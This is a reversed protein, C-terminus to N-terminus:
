KKAQEELYLKTEEALARGVSPRACLRKFYAPVSPAASFDQQLFMAWNLVTVLYADAVSFGDLLFDHGALRRELVSLRLAAKSKAYDRAGQGAKPDLPPTFTAKHLETGIFGIWEHLRFREAGHQPGLLGRGARDAVYPLVAGNETLLTGDDTRLVPVQGMPNIAMFDAGDAARRAKTDVQIFNIPLEAEYAAIRTAMSCALPAFYLDM